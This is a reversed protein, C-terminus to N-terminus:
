AAATRDHDREKEAAAASLANNRRARATAAFSAQLMEDAFREADAAAAEWFAPNGTWRPVVEWLDPHRTLFRAHAAHAAALGYLSAALDLHRRADRYARDARHRYTTATTM